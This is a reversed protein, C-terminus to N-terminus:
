EETALQHLNNVDGLEAYILEKFGVWTLSTRWDPNNDKYLKWVAAPNGGLRVGGYNVKGRDTDNLELEFNGECKEIFKNYAGRSGGTYEEIKTCKSRYLLAVPAPVVPAQPPPAPAAQMTAMQQRFAAMDAQMQDFEARTLVVNSNTAAEEGPTTEPVAASGSRLNRAM